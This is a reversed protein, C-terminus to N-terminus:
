FSSRQIFYELNISYQKLVEIIYRWQRRDQTAESPLDSATWQEKSCLIM